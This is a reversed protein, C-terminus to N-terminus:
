NNELARQILTDLIPDDFIEFWNRNLLSDVQVSDINIVEFKQQYTTDPFRYQDPITVETGQYNQGSKCSWFSLLGLSILLLKRM